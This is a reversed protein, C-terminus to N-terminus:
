VPFTWGWLEGHESVIEITDTDTVTDFNIEVTSLSVNYGANNWFQKMSFTRTSDEWRRQFEQANELSISYYRTVDKEATANPDINLTNLVLNEDICERFFAAIESHSANIFEQTSDFTADIGTTVPEITVDIAIM